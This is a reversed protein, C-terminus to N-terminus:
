QLRLVLNNAARRVHLNTSACLSHAQDTIEQASRESFECGSMLLRTTLLLGCLQLMDRSDAMWRFVLEPAYPLRSFLLLTTTQAIEANPIQSVWLDALDPSFRDTPMLIAAMIKSERVNELWLQQALRHDPAYDAAIQQLRPLEIGFIVHYSLGSERMRQSAVGNMHARFDQKIQRLKNTIDEMASCKGTM